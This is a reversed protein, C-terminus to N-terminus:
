GQTWLAKMWLSISFAWSGSTQPETEQFRKSTASCVSMIFLVKRLDGGQPETWWQSHNLWSFNACLGVGLSFGV